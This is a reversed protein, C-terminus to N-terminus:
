YERLDAQVTRRPAAAREGRNASRELFNTTEVVLTNGDWIAARTAWTRVSAPELTLVAALPIVRTEHIMEYRIAVFGPGQHIQNLPSSSGSRSSICTPGARRCRRSTQFCVSSIM